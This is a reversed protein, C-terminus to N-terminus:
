GTHFLSAQLRKKHLKQEARKLLNAVNRRDMNLTVAIESHTFLQGHALEYCERERMSLQSLIDQIMFVYYDSIREYRTETPKHVYELKVPDVSIERQYAALNEIGRKRGPQKAHIMWEIAYDIDRIM